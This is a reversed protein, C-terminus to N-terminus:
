RRVHQGVLVFTLWVSFVVLVVAFPALREALFGPAGSLLVGFTLLPIAKANVRLQSDQAHKIQRQLETLQDLVDAITESLENTTGQFRLKFSGVDLRIREVENHLMDVKEDISATPQWRFGLATTILGFSTTAKATPVHHVVPDPRRRIMRVLRQRALGALRQIDNLRKRVGQKAELLLSRWADPATLVTAIVSVSIGVFRCINDLGM